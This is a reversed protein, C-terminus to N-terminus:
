GGGSRAAAGVWQAAAGVHAAAGAGGGGGEGWGGRGGGVVGGRRTETEVGDLVSAPRLLGARADVDDGDSVDVFRVPASGLLVAFGGGLGEEV